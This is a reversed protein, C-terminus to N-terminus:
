LLPECQRKGAYDATPVSVAASPSLHLFSMSPQSRDCMEAQCVPHGHCAACRVLHPRVDAGSPAMIGYGNAADKGIITAAEQLSLPQTGGYVVSVAELVRKTSAGPESSHPAASLCELTHLRDKASGDGCAAAEVISLYQLIFRVSHHEDDPLLFWPVRALRRRLTLCAGADTEADSQCKACCFCAQQTEQCL